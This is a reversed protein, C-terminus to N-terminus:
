INHAPKHLVLEDIQRPFRPVSHVPHVSNMAASFHSLSERYNGQIRLLRALSLHTLPLPGDISLAQRYSQIAGGFDGLAALADGRASAAKAHASRDGNILKIRCPVSLAKDFMTVAKSANGAALYSLGIEFWPEAFEPNRAILSEFLRQPQGADIDLEAIKADLRVLPGQDPAALRKGTYFKLLERCAFISGIHCATSYVAVAESGGQLRWVEGRLRQRWANAKRYGAYAIRALFGIRASKQATLYLAALRSKMAM